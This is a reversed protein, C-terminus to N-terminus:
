VNRSRAHTHEWKTVLEGPPPSDQTKSDTPPLFAMHLNIREGDIEIRDILTEVIERREEFTLKPWREYLSHANAVVEVASDNSRELSDIETKLRPLEESITELRTVHQQYLQGFTESDLHDDMFARYVKDREREVRGREATLTSALSRKYVLVEDNHSLAAAVESPDILFARLQEVFVRELDAVPMKTHCTECYYKKMRVPKYMKKECPCFVLGSFLHRAKRGPKRKTVKREALIANVREWEEESVIAPVEVYLWESEPKLRKTGNKGYNDTYNIRRKGKAIPDTLFRRVTPGSFEAGRRTRYGMENLLCAVRKIRREKLFLEFSLKRVPAEHEDLDLQGDVWRYGFPAAGGLSKGLKARVAVSAKVRAVIEEREWQAMAALLTYFFRGAPTSTDISEDLAVLDAEHTQFYEAFELLEKTNRALRALKSFILSHIRGSKIDALMAQCEPHQWVTKGSVGSLDYVRVPTWGKVEAYLRARAEHHEPSEGKAQDETSVRIWIGVPRENM